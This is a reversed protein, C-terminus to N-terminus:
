SSMRQDRPIVAYSHGQNTWAHILGRRTLANLTERRIFPGQNTLAYGKRFCKLRGARAITLAHQQLPSLKM